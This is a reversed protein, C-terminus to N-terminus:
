ITQGLQTVYDGFIKKSLSAVRSCCTCSSFGDPGENSGLRPSLVHWAIKGRLNNRAQLVGSFTCNGHGNCGAYFALGGTATSALKENRKRIADFVEIPLVCHEPMDHLTQIGQVLYILNKHILVPSRKLINSYSM